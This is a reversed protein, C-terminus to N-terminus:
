RKREKFIAGKLWYWFDSPFLLSVREFRSFFTINTELMHVSGSDLGVAVRNPQQSFVGSFFYFLVEVVGGFRTM